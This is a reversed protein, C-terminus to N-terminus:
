AEVIDIKISNKIDIIKIGYEEGSKTIIMRTFGYGNGDIIVSDARGTNLDSLPIKIMEGDEMLKDIWIWGPTAGTESRFSLGEVISGYDVYDYPNSVSFDYSNAMLITFKKAVPIFQFVGDYITVESVTAIGNDITMGPFSPSINYDLTGLYDTLDLGSSGSYTEESIKEIMANIDIRIGKSINGPMSYFESINYPDSLDYDDSTDTILKPFQFYIEPQTPDVNITYIRKWYGVENKISVHFYTTETPDLRQTVEVGPDQSDSAIWGPKLKLTAGIKKIDSRINILGSPVIEGGPCRLETVQTFYKTLDDNTSWFPSISVPPNGINNSKLSVWVKPCEIILCGETNRNGHQCIFKVTTEEELIFKICRYTKDVNLLSVPSVSINASDNVTQYLLSSTNTTIYAIERGEKNEITVNRDTFWISETQNNSHILLIDSVDCDGYICVEGKPLVRVEDMDTWNMNIRVSEPYVVKEGVSYVRWKSYERPSLSSQKRELIKGKSNESLGYNGLITGSLADFWVNGRKEVREVKARTDSLSLLSDKKHRVPNILQMWAKYSVRVEKNKLRDAQTIAIYVVKAEKIEIDDPSDSFDIYLDPEDEVNSTIDQFVKIESIGEPVVFIYLSKQDIVISGFYNNYQPDVEVGVDCPVATNYLNELADFDPITTESFFDRLKEKTMNELINFDSSESLNYSVGYELFRYDVGAKGANYYINPAGGNVPIYVAKSIGGIKPNVRTKM